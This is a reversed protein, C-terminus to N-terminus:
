EEYAQRLLKFVEPDDEPNVSKLATRYADSIKEEDKTEELGLIHFILEKEM